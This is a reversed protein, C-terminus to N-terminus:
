RKTGNANCIPQPALRKAAFGTGHPRGHPDNVISPLLWGIEWWRTTSTPAAAGMGNGMPSLQPFATMTKDWQLHTSLGLTESRFMSCDCQPPRAPTGMGLVICHSPFLIKLIYKGLPFPFPTGDNQGVNASRNPRWANSESGWQPSCASTPMGLEASHSSFSTSKLIAIGMPYSLLFEDTQGLAFPVLPWVNADGGGCSPLSGFLVIIIKGGQSHSSSNM